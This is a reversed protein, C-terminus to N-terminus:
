SLLLVIVTHTFTHTQVCNFLLGVCDTGVDTSTGHSVDPPSMIAPLPRSSHSPNSLVPDFIVVLSIFDFVVFVIGELVYM